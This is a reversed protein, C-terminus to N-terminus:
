EIVQDARARLSPPITLGLATAAKLNIVMEFKTPQEVPLDGPKAGKVKPPQQAAAAGPQALLGASLASVRERRKMFGAGREESSREYQAHYGTHRELFGAVAAALVRPYHMFAAEAVIDFGVQGIAMVGHDGDIM